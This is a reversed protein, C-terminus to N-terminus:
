KRAFLSFTRINSVQCQASITRPMPQLGRVITACNLPPREEKDIFVTVYPWPVRTTIGTTTPELGM